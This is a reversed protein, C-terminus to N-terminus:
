SDCYSEFVKQFMEIAEVQKSSNSPTLEDVAFKEHHKLLLRGSAVLASSVMYYNHKLRARLDSTLGVFERSMGLDISSTYFKCEVSLVLNKYSPATKTKRCRDATTKRIVCIDCEHEVSSKGIVKVGTHVELVKRKGFTLETYIYAPDYIQHPGTRFAPVPFVYQNADKYSRKKNGAKQAAELVLRLAFLEFLSYTQKQSLQQADWAKALGENLEMLLDNKTAKSL